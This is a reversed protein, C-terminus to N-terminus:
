PRLDASGVAVPQRGSRQPAQQEAQEAHDSQAGQGADEAKGASPHQRGEGQRPTLVYEYVGDLLGHFAVGLAVPVWRRDVAALAVALLLVRPGHFFRANGVEPGKPRGFRARFYRYANPLSLDHFTAVHWLYHDIDLGVAAALFLPLAVRNRTRKAAAVAM